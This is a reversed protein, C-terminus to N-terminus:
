GSSSKIYMFFAERLLMTSVAFSPFSTYNIDLSNMSVVM